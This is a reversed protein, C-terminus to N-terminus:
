LNVTDLSTMTCLRGWVLPPMAHIRIIHLQFFCPQLFGKNPDADIYRADLKCRAQMMLLYHILVRSSLFYISINQDFAPLQCRNQSLHVTRSFLLVSYHTLACGVVHAYHLLPCGHKVAVSSRSRHSVLPTAAAPPTERRL